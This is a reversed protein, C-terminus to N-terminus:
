HTKIFKLTKNISEGSIKVFYVGSALDAINLTHSNQKQFLHKEVIRGHVNMIVVEYQPDNTFVSINIMDMAPNPFLSALPVDNEILEVDTLLDVNVNDICVGHGWYAIAEFAIYYDSSGNPLYLSQHTWSSYSENTAEFLVWDAGSSNKYYLRLKDQDGQWEQNHLYFSLVATKGSPINISPTILWSNYGQQSSSEVKFYANKAGEFASAPYEEDNGAGIAWDKNGVIYSQTWGSPLSSSEFGEFFISEGENPNEPDLGNLTTPNTGAPDLWPRLKDISNGGNSEWHYSFKGYYDAGSTNSCSAAGGSLTGVIQKNSNFIPSGSSGGETVSHETETATWTVKWAANSAMPEDGIQVTASTLSTTYTSIKKPDGLPHHIGVGSNSASEGRNWGNYYPSWSSPPSSSLLLLQFDSGGNHSGLSKLTSGTIMMNEPATGSDDCGPKEYNFYFQWNNRDASSADGGCHEATLFYPTADENTNNILSGSCLYWSSGIKFLIKAVGKKEKQWNSGEPCNVNVMCELNKTEDFPGGSMYNYMISEINLKFDPSVEQHEEGKEPYQEYEIIIEDGPLLHTTFVRHQNNNNSTFAGIIHKKSKDYVFLRANDPMEFDDVILSLSKAGPSVVHLRWILTGCPLHEWTGSNDPNLGANISLATRPPLGLSNNFDDEEFIENWNVDPNIIHSDLERLNLEDYLVEPKVSNIITQTEPTKFSRPIGGENIQSFLGTSLSLLFM